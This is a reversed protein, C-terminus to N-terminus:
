WPASLGPILRWGGIRTASLRGPGAAAASASQSTSGVVTLSKERNAQAMIPSRSATDGSLGGIRHMATAIGAQDIPRSTPRPSCADSNPVTPAGDGCAVAWSQNGGLM